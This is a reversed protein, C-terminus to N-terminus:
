EFFNGLIEEWKKEAVEIDPASGQPPGFFGRLDAFYVALFGAVLKRVQSVTAHMEAPGIKEGIIEPSIKFGRLQGSLHPICPQMSKPLNLIVGWLIKFGPQRVDDEIGIVKIVSQQCYRRYFAGVEIEEGLVNKPVGVEIEQSM